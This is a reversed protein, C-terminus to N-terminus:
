PRLGASGPARLALRSPGAATRSADGLPLTAPTSWSPLLFAGGETTRLHNTPNFSKTTMQFAGAPAKSLFALASLSFLAM